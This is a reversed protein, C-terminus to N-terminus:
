AARKADLNWGVLVMDAGDYNFTFIDVAGTTETPRIGALGKYITNFGLSNDSAYTATFRYDAGTVPNTPAEVLFTSGSVSVALRNAEQGDWAAGSTLPLEDTKQTKTFTNAADLEALTSTDVIQAWFLAETTPDRGTSGQLAVYVGTGPVTVVDGQAYATGANYAGRPVMGPTGDVGDTGDVGNTGNTGDQGDVGDAGAPGQAFGAGASWDAVADSEKWYVTGTTTDLFSFNKPKANWQTRDATVGIEDPIFNVGPTGDDGKPGQTVETFAGQVAETKITGDDAIAQRVFDIIDGDTDGLRDLEIDIKDGDHPEDPQSVSHSSFSYGRQPKTPVPQPM